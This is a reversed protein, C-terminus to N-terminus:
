HSMVHLRSRTFVSVRSEGGDRAEALSEEWVLFFVRFFVFFVGSFVSFFSCVRFLFFGEAKRVVEEEEEEEGNRDSNRM